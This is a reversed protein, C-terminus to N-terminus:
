PGIWVGGFNNELNNPSIDGRLFSVFDKLIQPNRGIWITPTLAMVAAGFLHGWKRLDGTMSSHLLHRFLAATLGSMVWISLTLFGSTM